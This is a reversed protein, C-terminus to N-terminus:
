AEGGNNSSSEAMASQGFHYRGSLRWWWYGFTCLFLASGFFLFLPRLTLRAEGTAPLHGPGGTASVAHGSLERAQNIRELQPQRWSYKPVTLVLAVLAGVLFVPLWFLPSDTVSGGNKESGIQTTPKSDHANGM